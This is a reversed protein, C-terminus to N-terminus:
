PQSSFFKGESNLKTLTNQYLRKTAMEVYEQNNDCCIFERNLQKCALATTGTGAFCDVILEGEKSSTEIIRKIIALPKQTPHVGLSEKGGMINFTWVDTFNSKPNFYRRLDEYEKKLDEYEKKLDEYEKKLYEDNLYKRIKLYQEETIINDGNLWNSVCGTLGGTRSPFLKAIQKNSVGARKFEEQLYQAFKNNPKLNEDLIKDAIMKGSNIDWENSYFLIKETIPAYSRYVNWGKITLNNPKVWTICNLLTFIKDLEVQVYACVKDDAFIYFSGNDKLVRKIEKGINSIWIIYDELTEWQNDWEHKRQKWDTKMVNFYPPDILVLNVSKSELSKLLELADMNYIKNTEM